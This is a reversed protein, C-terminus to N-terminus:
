LTLDLSTKIKQILSAESQANVRAFEPIVNSQREQGMLGIDVPRRATGTPLLNPSATLDRYIPAGYGGDPISPLNPNPNIPPTGGMRQLFQQSINQPTGGINNGFLRNSVPLGRAAMLQDIFSM